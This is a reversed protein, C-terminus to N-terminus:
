KLSIYGQGEQINYEFKFIKFSEENHIAFAMNAGDPTLVQNLIIHLEKESIHMESSTM